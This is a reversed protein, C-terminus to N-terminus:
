KSDCFGLWPFVTVPARERKVLVEFTAEQQDVAM